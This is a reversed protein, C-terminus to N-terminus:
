GNDAHYDKEVVMSESLASMRFFQRWRLATRDAHNDLTVEVARRNGALHNRDLLQARGKRDSSRHM